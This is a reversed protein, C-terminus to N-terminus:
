YRRVARVSYLKTKLDYNTGASGFGYYFDEGWAHNIDYETSSWYRVNFQLGTTGGLIRNIIMGANYCQQLEWIAPLYWDTYGGGTYNKCLLAASTTQGAQNIIAPTNVEGAFQSQATNGILTSDINSWPSNTSLDNLSAILGHEGTSDQWVSAIIGGGYLQGIYHTFLGGGTPGIAGTAGALGTPGAIGTAGIAGTPGTAGAIGTPGTTGIGEAGTPGIPGQESNAAFLAYPVSLLQSTGMDTFNSGGTPDLEVQLYKAGTSWNVLALNNLIGIKANVLGFQNATDSQTENFVSTGTPTIDHIIFKLSVVTGNAVPQGSANRVVAQYNILQPAQAGANLASVLVVAFAAIIYLLYNNKM